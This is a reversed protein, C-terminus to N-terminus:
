INNLSEITVRKIVTGTVTKVREGSYSENNDFNASIAQFTNNMINKIKNEIDNEDVPKTSQSKYKKMLNSYEEDKGVMETKLHEIEKYLKDILNQNSTATENYKTQIHKIDSELRIIKEDKELCVLQLQDIKNKLLKIENSPETQQLLSNRSLKTVNISKDAGKNSNIFEEYVKIKNEYEALLKQLVEMQFQSQNTRKDGSEINVVKSLMQDLKDSVRNINIRLESNNMRQETIFYNMENSSSSSPSTIINTNTVPVVQGNLYTFLPMSEPSHEKRPLLKQTEILSQCEVVSKDSSNRKVVNKIPRHRITKYDNTDNTDSSDSSREHSVVRLPLVSQGMSAMRNLLSLKTRRNVSSDTDNGTEKNDAQENIVTSTEVSTLEAPGKDTESSSKIMVDFSKLLNLIKTLEDESAYLSWYKHLNDLYSFYTKEKITVEFKASITASSLTVKNSDYLIINHVGTKVINLIAFGLKGRNIYDKNSWEYGVLACAFICQTPKQEEPKPILNTPKPPTYKLSENETIDENRSKGFINALSTSSAPTFYDDDIDETHLM